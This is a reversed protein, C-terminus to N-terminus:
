FGIVMTFGRVILRLVRYQGNSPRDLRWMSIVQADQVKSQNRRTTWIAYDSDDMRSLEPEDFNGHQVIIGSIGRPM